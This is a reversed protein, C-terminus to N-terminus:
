SWPEPFVSHYRTSKRPEFQLAEVADRFAFYHPTQQHAKFDDESHYVEYLFFSEPEGDPVPGAQRLVDFRACGPEQVSGEHNQRILDIFADSMGPKIRIPVCVVYM